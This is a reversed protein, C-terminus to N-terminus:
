YAADIDRLYQALSKRSDNLAGMIREETRPRNGPDLVKGVFTAKYIQVRADVTMLYGDITTRYRRYLEDKIDYDTPSAANASTILASALWCSALTLLGFFLRRLGNDPSSVPMPSALM